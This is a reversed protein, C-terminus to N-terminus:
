TFVFVSGLSQIIIVYLLLHWQNLHTLWGIFICTTGYILVLVAKLRILQITNVPQESGIRQNLLGSLGADALFLLVYSLNLVAFYKGYAENGATVQVQRDIFFIWAPKVLANLLILWSLGKLFSFSKM